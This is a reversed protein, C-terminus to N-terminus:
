TAFCPLPWILIFYHLQFCKFPFVNAYFHMVIQMYRANARISESWARAESVKRNLMNITNVQFNRRKLFSVKIFEERNIM